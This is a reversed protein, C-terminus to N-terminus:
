VEQVDVVIAEAEEKPQAVEVIDEEKAPPPLAISAEKESVNFSDRRRGGANNSLLDIVAKEVLTTKMQPVNIFTLLFGMTYSVADTVAKLSVEHGAYGSLLESASAGLQLAVGTELDRLYQEDPFDFTAGVAIPFMDANPNLKVLLGLRALQSPSQLSRSTLLVCARQLKGSKMATAFNSSSLDQDEIFLDSPQDKGSGVLFSHFLRSAAVAEVDLHDILILTFFPLRDSMLEMDQMQAALRRSNQYFKSAMNVEPKSQNAGVEAVSWTMREFLEEFSRSLESESVFNMFVPEVHTFAKIAQLVDEQPLGFGRLASTDVELAARRSKGSVKNSTTRTMTSKHGAVGCVTNEAKPDVFIVSHLPTGKRYACVMAGICWLRCLTASGFAITVNRSVRVADLWVATCDLHDIDYFVRGKQLTVSLISYLLRCSTGGAGAHHSLYMSYSVSQSVLQCARLISLALVACGVAV